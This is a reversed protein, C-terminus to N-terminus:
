KLEPAVKIFEVNVSEPLARANDLRVQDTFRRKAANLDNANILYAVTTQFPGSIGAVKVSVKGEIYFLM